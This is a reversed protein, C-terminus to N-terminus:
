QKYIHNCGVSFWKFSVVWSLYSKETGSVGDDHNYPEDIFFNGDLDEELLHIECDGDHYEDMFNDMNKM